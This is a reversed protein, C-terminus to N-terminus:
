RVQPLFVSSSDFELRDAVGRRSLSCRASRLGDAMQVRARSDEGLSRLDGLIVTVYMCVCICMCVYMCLYVYMHQTNLVTSLVHLISTLRDDFTYHTCKDGGPRRM